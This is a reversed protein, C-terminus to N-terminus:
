GHDILRFIQTKKLRPKFFDFLLGVSRPRAVLQNPDDELCILRGNKTGLILM